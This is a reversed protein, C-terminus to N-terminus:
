ECWAVAVGTETDLGKSVTKFSGRGIEEDFKLYREDRSSDIAKPEEEENQDIEEEAEKKELKEDVAEEVAEKETEKIDAAVEKDPLVEKDDGAEKETNDNDSDGTAKNGLKVVKINGVNFRGRKEVKEEGM